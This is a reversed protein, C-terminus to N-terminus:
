RQLRLALLLALVPVSLREFDGASEQGGLTGQQVVDEEAVLLVMSRRVLDNLFVFFLCVNKVHDPGEIADLAALVTGDDALKLVNFHDNRRVQHARYTLAQRLGVCNLLSHRHLSRLIVLSVRQVVGAVVEELFHEVIRFDVFLLEYFLQQSM